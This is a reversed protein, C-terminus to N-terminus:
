QYKIGQCISMATCSHSEGSSMSASGSCNGNKTNSGNAAGTVQCSLMTDSGNCAANCYLGSNTKTYSYYVPVKTPTAPAAVAVDKCVFEGGARSLAQGAACDAPIDRCVFSKGNVGVYQNATCGPVYVKNISNSYDYPL